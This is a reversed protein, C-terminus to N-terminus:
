NNEMEQAIKELIVRDAPLWPVSYLEERRLWRSELTEKLLLEGKVVSCWFCEMTLHFTPYEYEVVGIPADVQILTDLEERIERILAAVSTEGTEIKGGPFEWQGKYDGYGRATAFVCDDKRIVAAVVRISKEKSMKTAEM